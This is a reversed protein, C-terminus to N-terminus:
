KSKKIDCNLVAAEMSEAIDKILQSAEEYSLRRFNHPFYHFVQNRARKWSDWLKAALQKGQKNKGCLNEFISEHDKMFGPNLLRGIRIDDGYYEDERILNLDLLLQKLFGEYAKSFPFVMYSFDSTHDGNHKTAHDLLSEGDLILGKLDESLYFWLISNKDLIQM